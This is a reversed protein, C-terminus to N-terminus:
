ELDGRRKEEWAARARDEQMYYEIREYRLGRYTTVLWMPVSTELGSGEGKVSWIVKSLAHRGDVRIEEAEVREESYPDKLREYQARIAPWGVREGPEPWEPPGVIVADPWALAEITDWDDANWADFGERAVREIEEATPTQTEEM